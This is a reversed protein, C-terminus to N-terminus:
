RPVIINNNKFRQYLVEIKKVLEITSTKEQTIVVTNGDQNIIM